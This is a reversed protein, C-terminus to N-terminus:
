TPVGKPYEQKLAEDITVSRTEVRSSDLRDFGVTPERTQRCRHNQRPRRDLQLAESTLRQARRPLPQHRSSTPSPDSIFDKVGLRAALLEAQIDSAMNSQRALLRYDGFNSKASSLGAPRSGTGHVGLCPSQPLQRHAIRRRFNVRSQLTSTAQVIVSRTDRHRSKQSTGFAIDEVEEVVERNLTGPVGAVDAICPRTSAM